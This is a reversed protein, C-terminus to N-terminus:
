GEGLRVIAGGAHCVNCAGSRTPFPMFNMADASASYLTPFLPMDPLPLAETTYFNGLGDVEIRLVLEGAGAPATRLEITGDPHPEGDADYLTGAASFRGRGPGFAQHCQMCNQGLNHSIADGHRSQLAVDLAPDRVFDPDGVVPEDLEDADTDADCAALALLLAAGYALRSM